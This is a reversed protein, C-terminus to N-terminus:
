VLPKQMQVCVAYICVSMKPTHGDEVQGLLHSEILFCRKHVCRRSGWMGVWLRQSECVYIECVRM